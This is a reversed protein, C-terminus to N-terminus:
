DKENMLARYKEAMEPNRKALDQENRYLQVLESDGKRIRVEITGDTRVEFSQKPKGAGAMPRFFFQAKGDGEGAHMKEMLRHVEEMAEQYRERADGLQSHLQDRLEDAHEGLLEVDFDMDVDFDGDVDFHFFKARGADTYLEAAEPDAQRLEEVNAYTDTSTAGSADTRKVTIEGGDSQEVATSAGDRDVKVRVNSSGGQNFVHVQRSGSEPLMARIDEPLDKLEELNGIDKVVWEGGPGRAVIKGRTRVEDEIQADPATMTWAFGGAGAEKRSGITARLTQEQGDRLVIVEVADGPKRARIVRAAANFDATLEEGGIELIVDHALIGAKEAPSDKVVNSVLMGRGDLQLQSSLSEPVTSMAVGLWGSNPDADGAAAHARLKIVQPAAGDGEEETTGVLTVAHAEGGPVGVLNIIAPEGDKGGGVVRVVAKRESGGADDALAAGAYPLASVALGFVVHRIM